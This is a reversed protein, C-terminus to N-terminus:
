KLMTNDLYHIYYILNLPKVVDNEMQCMLSFGRIYADAHILGGGGSRWAVGKYLGM